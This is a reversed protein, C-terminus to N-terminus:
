SDKSAMTALQTELRKIEASIEECNQKFEKKGTRAKLKAKLSAIRAEIGPINELFASMLLVGSFTKAPFLM